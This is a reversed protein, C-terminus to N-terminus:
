SAKLVCAWPCFVLDAFGSLVCYLRDGVPVGGSGIFVEGVWVDCVDWSPNSIKGNVVCWWRELSAKPHWACQVQDVPGFLMAFGTFSKAIRVFGGLVESGSSMVHRAVPVLISVGVDGSASSSGVYLFQGSEWDVIFNVPSACLSVLRGINELQPM